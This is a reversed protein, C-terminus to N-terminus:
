RVYRVNKSANKSAGKPRVTQACRKPVSKPFSKPVSIRLDHKPLAGPRSKVALIQIHGQHSSICAAVSLVRQNPAHRRQAIALHIWAGTSHIKQQGVRQKDSSKRKEGKGTQREKPGRPCTNTKTCMLMNLNTQCIGM